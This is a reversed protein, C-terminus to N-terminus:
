DRIQSKRYYPAYIDEYYSSYALPIRPHSFPSYKNSRFLAAMTKLKLTFGSFKKNGKFVIKEITKVNSDISFRKEYLKHIVSREKASTKSDNVANKLEEIFIENDYRLSHNQMKVPILKCYKDKLAFSSYGAWDTLITKTGSLLAEIPSMGYDEDNHLSLSIFMDSALYYQSLEEPELSGVYHVRDKLKAPLNDLRLQVRSQYQNKALYNGIFPTGLQDYAGAFLFLPPKEYDKFAKEFSDILGLTNKQPSLRGTYLFVFDDKDICLDNRAKGRKEQDFYFKRTDVPFPCYHVSKPNEVFSSILEVQKHSAAIFQCQDKKILKETSTWDVTFLTFDGYVHFIFHCRKPQLEKYYQLFKLPHPQHDMFILTDPQWDFTRQVENILDLESQSNYYNFYEIEVQGNSQDAISRYCADINPTIIRCSQWVSPNTAVIIALKTKKM